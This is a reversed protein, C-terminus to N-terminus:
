GQKILLKLHAPTHRRPYRTRAADRKQIRWKLDLTVVLSSRGNHELPVMIVNANVPRPPDCLAHGQVVGALAGRSQEPCPEGASTPPGPLITRLMGSALSTVYCHSVKFM